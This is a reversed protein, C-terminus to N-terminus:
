TVQLPRTKGLVLEVAAKLRGEVRDIRQLIKKQGDRTWQNYLNQMFIKKNPHTLFNVHTIPDVEKVLSLDQTSVAVKRLRQPTILPEMNWSAYIDKAAGTKDLGASLIQRQMLKPLKHFMEEKEEFSAQSSVKQLFHELKPHNRKYREKRHEIQFLSWIDVGMWVSGILLIAIPLFLGGTGYTAAGVVGTLFLTATIVALSGLLFHSWIYLRDWKGVPSESECTKQFSLFDAIWMTTFCFLFGLGAYVSDALGTFIAGLLGTVFYLGCIFRNEKAGAELEKFLGESQKEAYARHAVDKSGLLEYLHLQQAKAIANMGRSGFVRGHIAEKNRAWICRILTPNGRLDDMTTVTKASIGMRELVLPLFKSYEQTFLAKGLELHSLKKVLKPNIESFIGKLIMGLHIYVDQDQLKKREWLASILQANKKLDCAQIGETVSVSLNKLVQALYKRHDGPNWIAQKVSSFSANGNFLSRGLREDSFSSLKQSASKSLISRLEKGLGEYFDQSSLCEPFVGTLEGIFRRLSEKSGDAQASRMRGLFSQIEGISIGALPLFAAYLAAFGYNAIPM